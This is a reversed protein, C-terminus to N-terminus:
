ETRSRQEKQYKLFLDALHKEIEPHLSIVDNMEGPDASLNYLARAAPEGETPAKKKNTKTTLNERVLAGPLMLKWPGERIALRGTVSQHIVAPRQLTNGQGLLLPLINCSDEAAPEPLTAGTLAAFTAMFDTLCITKDSVSDAAIKGPWRAFFPIRHGGEYISGKAGRWQASPEHGMKRLEQAGTYLSSGNDATFIFLTNDAIGARQIAESVTGVAADTEIIFDALPNMGSKGRFPESPAIPEHPSTFTFFLFFPQQKKAREEIHALTKKLMQPLIQDFKWGPLMPGPRGDLNKEAKLDTPLGVTRDNEIFCYPPYNPVDTGFYYDFGRTTPGGAIPKTFDPTANGERPWDWGLHWKGICATHYGQQRLLGPTTLRGADILPPDYPGLVGRVLRTRWAYRGTLIGYRTPSCVASGSHADVLTIGQKALRDINPTQIKSKPNLCSVHGHGMDDALMIVINPRTSANSICVFLGFALSYLIRIIMAKM